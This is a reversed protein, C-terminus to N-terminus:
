FPARFWKEDKYQGYKSAAERNKVLIYEQDYLRTRYGMLHMVDKAMFKAIKKDLLLADRKSSAWKVGPLMPLLRDLKWKRFIESLKLAFRPIPRIAFFGDEGQSQYLPMFVMSSHDALVEEGNSEALKEGKKIFKFNEYGPQMKFQEGEKIAYRFYIEYIGVSAESASRLEEYHASYNADAETLIGTFVLSLYIFAVHNEISALDDHQGGEFGFSVYGLENVYSLLPGNLYEEIGLVLACPFQQTFKRNLLSDNVTLFPATESSTTHLDMFYFPGEDNEVIKELEKYIELQQKTDEDDKPLNNDAMKKMRATTWLRNLDKKDYREGRELAWLNGALAYINGNVTIGSENLENLVENLAFVGSPENGHIGALFIISAGKEKGKIQGIYREVDITENKAKSYVKTMTMRFLM